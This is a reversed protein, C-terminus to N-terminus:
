NGAPCPCNVLSCSCTEGYDILEWCEYSGGCPYSCRCVVYCQSTWYYICTQPDPCYLDCLRTCGSWDPNWGECCNCYTLCGLNNSCCCDSCNCEHWAESEPVSRIRPLFTAALGLGAAGVARLVTRRPVGGERREGGRNAGPDDPEPAVEGDLNKQNTEFM